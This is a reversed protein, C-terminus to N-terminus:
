PELPRFGNWRRVDVTWREAGRGALLAAHVVNELGLALGLELSDFADVVEPPRPARLVHSRMKRRGDAAGDRSQILWAARGAGVAAATKEFGCILDGARRALGLGALLRRRLGAEVQDSLDAPAGVKRKLARSFADRRVAQDVAGRRAEVWVGRGPLKRALDAVVAGDPGAVFRVLRAEDMVEGSVADRRQRSAEAHTRAAGAEPEPEPESPELDLADPEPAQIGPAGVEPAHPEPAAPAEGQPDAAPSPASM